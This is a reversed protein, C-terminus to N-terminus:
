GICVGMFDDGRDLYHVCRDGGFIEKHGGIIVGEQGEGAVDENGSLWQAM